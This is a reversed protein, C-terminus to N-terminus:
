AAVLERREDRRQRASQTADGHEAHLGLRDQPDHSRDLTRTNGLRPAFQGSTDQARDRGTEGFGLTALTSKVLAGQDLRYDASV